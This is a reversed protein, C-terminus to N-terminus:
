LMDYQIQEWPPDGYSAVHGGDGGHGGNGYGGYDYGNSDGNGGYGGGDGIFYNGHGNGHHWHASGAADRDDVDHGGYRSNM